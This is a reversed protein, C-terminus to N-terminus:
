STGQLVSTEGLFTSVFTPKSCSLRSSVITLGPQLELTVSRLVPEADPNWGIGAKRLTPVSSAQVGILQHQEADTTALPKSSRVQKDM